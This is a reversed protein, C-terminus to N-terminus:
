VNKGIDGIKQLQDYRIHGIGNVSVIHTANEMKSTNVFTYGM